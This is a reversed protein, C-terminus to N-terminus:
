SSNLLRALEEVRRHLEDGDYLKSAEELRKNIYLAKKRRLTPSHYWTLLIEYADVLADNGEEQAKDRMKKFHHRGFVLKPDLYQKRTRSM